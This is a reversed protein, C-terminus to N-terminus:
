PRLGAGVIRVVGATSPDTEALSRLDGDFTWLEIGFQLALALYYADYSSVDLRRRLDWAQSRLERLVPIQVLPLREADEYARTVEALPLGLGDRQQWNRHRKKGCIQQFEAWFLEPVLAIVGGAVVANLLTSAQPSNREQFAWAGVVNADIVVAEPVGSGSSQM